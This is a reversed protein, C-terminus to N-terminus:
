GIRFCVQMEISETKDRHQVTNEKQEEEQQTEEELKRREWEKGEKVKDPPVIMLLLIKGDLEPKSPTEKDFVPGNMTSGRVKQSIVLDESDEVTGTTAVETEKVARTEAATRRLRVLKGIILRGVGAHPPHAYGTSIVCLILALLLHISKM